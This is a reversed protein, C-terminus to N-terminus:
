RGLNGHKTKPPQCCSHLMPAFADPLVQEKVGNVSHRADCFLNATNAEHDIRLVGCDIEIVSIAKLLHFVMRLIQEQRKLEYLYAGPEAPPSM